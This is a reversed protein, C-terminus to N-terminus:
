FVLGRVVVRASAVRATQGSGCVWVKRGEFCWGKVQM